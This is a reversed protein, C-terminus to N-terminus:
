APLPRALKCDESAFERTKLAPGALLGEILGGAIWLIMSMCLALNFDIQFLFFGSWGALIGTPAWLSLRVASDHPATLWPPLAKRARLAFLEKECMRGYCVGVLAEKLEDKVRECEATLRVIEARAEALAQESAPQSLLAACAVRELFVNRNM